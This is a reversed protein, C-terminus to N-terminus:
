VEGKLNLEKCIAVLEPITRFALSLLLEDLNLVENAKCCLLIESMLSRKVDDSRQDLEQYGQSLELYRHHYITDKITQVHSRKQSENSM